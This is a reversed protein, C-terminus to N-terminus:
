YPLLSTLVQGTAKKMGSISILDQEKATLGPGMKSCGARQEPATIGEKSEGGAPSGWTVARLSVGSAREPM